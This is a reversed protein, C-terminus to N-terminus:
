VAARFREFREELLERDPHEVRHRPLSIAEGHLGQLAYRLTPGDREKLVKPSIEIRYDPRVTLVDADFARHHIACMALGNTM